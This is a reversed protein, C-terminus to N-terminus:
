LPLYCHTCSDMQIWSWCGLIKAEAVLPRSAPAWVWTKLPVCIGLLHDGGSAQTKDRSLIVKRRRKGEQPILTVPSQWFCCGSLVLLACVPWTCCMKRGARQAMSLTILNDPKFSTHSYLAPASCCHIMKRETSIRQVVVYQVGRIGRSLMWLKRVASLDGPTWMHILAVPMSLHM